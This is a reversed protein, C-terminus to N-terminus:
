DPDGRMSNIALLEDYNILCAEYIADVLERPMRRIKRVNEEIEHIEGAVRMKDELTEARRLMTGVICPSRYGRSAKDATEKIVELTIDHKEIESIFETDMESVRKLVESKQWELEAVREQLKAIQQKLTDVEDELHAAKWMLKRRKVGLEKLKNLEERQKEREAEEQKEKLEDIKKWGGWYGRLVEKLIKNVVVKNKRRM